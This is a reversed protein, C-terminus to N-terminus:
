NRGSERIATSFPKRCIAGMMHTLCWPCRNHFAMIARWKANLRKPRNYPVLPVVRLVEFGATQLVGVYEDPRFVYEFFTVDQRRGTLRRITPNCVIWDQLALLGIRRLWNLCPVTCFMMGGPRLVRYMDRLAANPGDIDHEVAGFSVIADFFDSPYPM